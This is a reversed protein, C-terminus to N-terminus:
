GQTLLTLLKASREAFGAMADGELAETQMMALDYLHRGLLKVKEDAGEGAHSALYAGLPHATNVLLTKKQPFQMGQGYMRSMEKMRREQESVTLVAPPADAELASLGVSLEADSVADKFLAELAEKQGEVAETKTELAAIDADVRQFRLPKAAYELFSTFNSDILSDLVVVTLEKKEYLRIMGAQRHADNTYYVPQDGTKEKLELLSLWEGKTTEFLLSDKIQEFFTNDRMCGYKVFPHIDKWYKQYDERQAGFLSLLKDGVKKTIHASLKKVYGDNQLFSRSVNLPLDPCDVVGKLLLLFEPIVEKINDAVFVQNCFLKVQGENGSMENKLRPFYLIGQLRFPYDVNLHIWFLPDEFEHFVKQYFAKYEDESVERASKTWLPAIDNIPAAEKKDHCDCAEDECGEEGHEHGCECEHAEDEAKVMDLYIPVSMFACYKDLVAAVRGPQLFEAEEDMLELTITTGRTQRSGPSIEYAMGDTSEWKVAEAGERFSLTDITVKKAAMFASYFGMGFHGIIQGADQSQQYKELFEQAGSFAVQNIYKDIEEDTMGIGNDSFRILNQAADVQVHVAYPADDGEAEGSLVIRKHKNVADCANSVLERIFIDKDSYLWKKIIPMINQAHISINGTQVSM